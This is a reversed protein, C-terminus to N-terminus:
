IVSIGELDPVPVGRRRLEAACQAMREELQRVWRAHMAMALEMVEEHRLRLGHFEPDEILWVKVDKPVNRCHPVRDSLLHRPDDSAAGGGHMHREKCLSCKPIIWLWNGGRRSRRLEAYQLVIDPHAM